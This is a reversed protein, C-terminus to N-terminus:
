CGKADNGRPRALAVFQYGLLTPVFRTVMAVMRYVSRGLLSTRFWPHILGLPVPTPRCWVVDLGSSSLLELFSKKTYFHVHTKDLIGRERYEFRGFLLNLRIWLHAVNPVSVLFITHPSQLRVLRALQERGQSVHELVDACVVVDKGELYKDPAQGLTGIFIDEYFRMAARGWSRVPEIGYLRYARPPLGRALVGDSVGVDLITRGEPINELIADRILVHSSGIEQYKEQYTTRKGSQMTVRIAFKCSGTLHNM